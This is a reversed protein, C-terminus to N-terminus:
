SEWERLALVTELSEGCVPDIFKKVSQITRNWGRACEEPSNSVRDIFQNGIYVFNEM